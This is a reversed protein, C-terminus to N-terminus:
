LMRWIVLMAITVIAGLAILSFNSYQHKIREEDLQGIYDRFIVKLLAKETQYIDQQLEEFEEEFFTKNNNM